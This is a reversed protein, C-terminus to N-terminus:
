EGEGLGGHGREYLSMMFSEVLTHIYGHGVDDQGGLPLVAIVWGRIACRAQLMQLVRGGGLYFPLRKGVPPLLGADMISGGLFANAGSVEPCLHLAGSTSGGNVARPIWIQTYSSTRYSPLALIDRMLSLARHPVGATAFSITQELGSSLKQQRNTMPLLQIEVVNSRMTATANSDRRAPSFTVSVDELLTTIANVHIYKRAYIPAFYVQRIGEGKRRAEEIRERERELDRQRRAGDTGDNAEKMTDDEDDENEPVNFYESDELVNFPGIAFGLSRAPVPLWSASAWVHTALIQEITTIAKTQNSSDIHNDHEEVSAGHDPPIIHPATNRRSTDSKHMQDLWTFHDKGISEQLLKRRMSNRDGKFHLWTDAVGFDEGCGVVRLGERMPATVHITIQHSARHKFSASDLCPLWSRAGEHDGIVGATTYIHAPLTNSQPIIHIGGAHIPTLSSLDAIHYRVTIKFARRGHETDSAEALRQAVLSKRASQRQSTRESLQQHLDQGVKGLNEATRELDYKWQQSLWKRRAEKEEPPIAPANVPPKGAVSNPRDISLRLEGMTSAISAARLGTTMGAAGRSCQSDADYHKTKGEMFAEIDSDTYSSAPKVLVHELPDFHNFSSKWTEMASVPKEEIIESSRGAEAAAGEEQKIKATIETPCAGVTQVEVSDVECNGRFHIAMQTTSPLPPATDVVYLTSEGHCLWSSDSRIFSLKSAQHYVRTFSALALHPPTGAPPSFKRKRPNNPSTSSPQPPSNDNTTGQPKPSNSPKPSNGGGGLSLRLTPGSVASAGQANNSPSRPPSKQGPTTKPSKGGPPSSSMVAVAIIWHKLITTVTTTKPQPKLEAIVPM